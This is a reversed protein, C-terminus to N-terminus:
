KSLESKGFKLALKMKVKMTKDEVEKLKDEVPHEYFHKKVM